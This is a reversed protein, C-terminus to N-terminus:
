RNREAPTMPAFKEHRWRQDRGTPSGMPASRPLWLPRRAQQEAGTLAVLRQVQRVPDRLNGLRYIGADSGSRPAQCM